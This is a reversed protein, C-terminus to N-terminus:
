SIRYDVSIYKKVNINCKIPIYPKCIITSQIAVDPVIGCIVNSIDSNIYSCGQTINTKVLITQVPNLTARYTGEVFALDNITGSFNGIEIGDEFGLIRMVNTDGSCDISCAIVSFFVKIKSTATDAQFYFVESNNNNTLTINYLVVNLANLDYMGTPINYTYKTGNFSYKFLNNKNTINPMCYVIQAQSVSLTYQKGDDLNIPTTLNWQVKNGTSNIIKNTTPTNSIFLPQM